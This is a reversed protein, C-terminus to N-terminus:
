HPAAAGEPEKVTVKLNFSPVSVFQAALVTVGGTSVMVPSFKGTLGERVPYPKVPHFLAALPEPFVKVAEVVTLASMLTYAWHPAAAGAPEKVTVKLNFSPVSVFQAALVTVGGTSVMMPSFKGTLGERVPYTKVPQFVAALPEPLTNVAEVVTLASMVTYAWHPAAAGEPEKVTVKRNFSPVPLLWAALVTVGGKSVMM